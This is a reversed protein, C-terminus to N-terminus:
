ATQVRAALGLCHLNVCRGVLSFSRSGDEVDITGEVFQQNAAAVIGLRHAIGCTM